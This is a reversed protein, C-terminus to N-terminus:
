EGNTKRRLAARRAAKVCDLQGYETAQREVTQTNIALVRDFKVLAALVREWRENDRTEHATKDEWFHQFTEKLMALLESQQRFLYAQNAAESDLDHHLTAESQEIEAALKASTEVEHAVRRKELWDALPPIFTGLRAAVKDGNLILVLAVAVLWGYNEVFYKLDTILM